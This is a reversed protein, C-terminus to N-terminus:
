VKWRIQLSFVKRVTHRDHHYRKYNNLYQEKLAFAFKLDELLQSIPRYLTLWQARFSPPTWKEDLHQSHQIIVFNAPSIRNFSLKQGVTSINRTGSTAINASVSAIAHFNQGFKPSPGLAALCSTPALHAIGCDLLIDINRTGSTEINARSIQYFSLKQGLRPCTSLAALWSISIPVLSAIFIAGSPSAPPRHYSRVLESRVGVIFSLWSRWSFVVEDTKTEVHEFATCAWNWQSAYVRLVLGHSTTQKCDFCKRDIAPM